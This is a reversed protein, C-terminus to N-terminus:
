GVRHALNLRIKCQFVQAPEAIHVPNVVSLVDVNHIFVPILVLNDATIQVIFPLQNELDNNAIIFVFCWLYRVVWEM